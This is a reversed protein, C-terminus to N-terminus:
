RNMRQKLKSSLHDWLTPRPDNKDRSFFPLKKAPASGGGVEHTHHTSPDSSSVLKKCQPCVGDGTIFMKKGM